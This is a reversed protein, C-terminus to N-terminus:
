WSLAAFAAHCIALLTEVDKGMFFDKLFVQLGYFM